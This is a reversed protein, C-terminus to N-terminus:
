SHHLHDNLLCHGLRGRQPLHCGSPSVSSTFFLRERSREREAVMQNNHSQWQCDILEIRQARVVGFPLAKTLYVIM